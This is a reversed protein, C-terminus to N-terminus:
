RESETELVVNINGNFMSKFNKFEHFTISGKKGRGGTVM